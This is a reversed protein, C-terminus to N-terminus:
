GRWRHLARCGGARGVQECVGPGPNQFPPQGAIHRRCHLAASDTSCSVTGGCRDEGRRPRPARQLMWPCSRLAVRRHPFWFVPKTGNAPTRSPRHRTWFPLALQPHETLDPLSVDAVATACVGSGRGRLPGSTLGRLQLNQWRSLQDAARSGVQRGRGLVWRPGGERQKELSRSAWTASGGPLRQARLCWSSFPQAQAAWPCASAQGLGCWIFRTRSLCAPSENQAVSASRFNLYMKQPFQFKPHFPGGRYRSPPEPQPGEGM